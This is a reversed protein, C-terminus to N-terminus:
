IHLLNRIWVLIRHRLPVTYPRTDTKLTGILAHASVSRQWADSPYVRGSMAEPRYPKLRSLPM